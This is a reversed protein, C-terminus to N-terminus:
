SSETDKKVYRASPANKKHSYIEAKKGLSLPEPKAWTAKKVTQPTTIKSKFSVVLSDLANEKNGGNPLDNPIGKLYDPVDRDQQSHVNFKAKSNDSWGSRESPM